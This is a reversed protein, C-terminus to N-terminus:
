NRFVGLKKLYSKIREKNKKDHFYSREYKNFQRDTLSTITDSLSLSTKALVNEINRLEELLGEIDRQEFLEDIYDM